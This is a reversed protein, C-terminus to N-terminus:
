AAQSTSTAPLLSPVSRGDPHSRYCRTLYDPVDIDQQRCTAVVSLIREVFRGGGRQRDRRQAQPLDGRPAARREAGDNTPGVGEVRVFTWLPTEGALLGRCTAATRPCTCAAGRRLDGKLFPRMTAVHTRFGSRSLTGDRVHHRWEFLADSHGMLREGVEASEGGRDIMAQFDRDLHAWCFQRRKVWSYSKFRDCIVVKGAATGSMGKAVEAGRSTAITFATVPDTVAGRLWGKDQGQWWSTEDIHASRRRGPRVSPTGRGPGGVRRGGTAGAPPDHRHLDDSGVPRLGVPPDAAQGPPLGRGPRQPDGASSPRLGRHPCGAALRCLDLDSLSPLDLSPAPVRRGGAPGAASRGGPTPDARPRRRAVRRRVVPVRAAQVRLGAPTARAPGLSPTSPSPRAPRGAEEGLCSDTTAAQGPPDSPPPKSSDTSNKNVREESGAIRQELSRVVATVAAQAEPPLTDWLTQPLLPQDTM